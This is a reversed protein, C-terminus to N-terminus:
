LARQLTTTVDRLRALVAERENALEVGTKGEARGSRIARNLRDRELVLRAHELEDDGVDGLRGARNVLDAVTRALEDDGPPLDALPSQTRGVLHRAARRMLESTILQEPDIEFLTRAGTQPLAICLALFTREARVEHNRSEVGNAVTAPAARPGPGDMLSGVRGEPVELRGAVHRVLDERLASPPLPTLM